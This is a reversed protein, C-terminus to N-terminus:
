IIMRKQLEKVADFVHDKLNENPTLYHRNFVSPSVRGQLFDIVTEPIGYQHLWSGHIKRCYRMDCKIGSAWVPQQNSDFMVLNGDPQMICVGAPKDWTNSAWLYKRDQFRYNKYLILNSDAQYVFLYRGNASTISDGVRLSDGPNLTDAM